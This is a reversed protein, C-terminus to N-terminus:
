FENIFQVVLVCGEYNENYELVPLVETRIKEIFFDKHKDSNGVVFHKRLVDRLLQLAEVKRDALLELADIEEWREQSIISGHNAFHITCEETEKYDDQIDRILADVDKLKKDIVYRISM